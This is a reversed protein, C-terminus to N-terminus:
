WFGPHALNVSANVGKITYLQTGDALFTSYNGSLPAPCAHIDASITDYVPGLDDQTLAAGEITSGLVFNGPRYEIGRVVDLEPLSVNRCAQPGLQCAVLALMVGLSALLGIAIHMFKRM